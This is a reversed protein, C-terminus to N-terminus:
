IANMSLLKKRDIKGSYNKPFVPLIKISNIFIDKLNNHCFDMLEKESGIKSDKKLSVFAFVENDKKFAFAELVDPHKHLAEEIDRSFIIKKSDIMDQIRGAIYLYGEKDIYGFDDSLFLGNKFCKKNLESNNWYGQSVAQSKIAIRGIKGKKDVIKMEVGQMPKGAFILRSEDIKNQKIYDKSCILSLPPLVEAMGYGEQIIPGFFEIAEKLKEKSIYETGIIINELPLKIKDYKCFDILLNLWSPTMFITNIKQKIILNIIEREDFKDIFFNEIGLSFSPLFATGGATALSIMHLMKIGGETARPSNLVYNYFSNMWSKQLLMIGKPRGTTGSSFNISALDEPELNIKPEKTEGRSVITEYDKELSILFSVKTNEKIRVNFLDENYIIAKVACDNLIFIIDELSTDPVMPCLVLGSLYAAIRIEFYEKCNYLLLAVRDGKKVDLNSLSDALKKGREYIEQYTYSKGGEIIATKNKNRKAAQLILDRPLIIRKIKKLYFSTLLYKLEM